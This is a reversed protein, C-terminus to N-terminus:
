RLLRCAGCVVATLSIGVVMIGHIAGIVQTGTQNIGTNKM